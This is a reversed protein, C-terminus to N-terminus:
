MLGLVQKLCMVSSLSAFKQPYCGIIGKYLNMVEQSEGAFAAYFEVSISGPWEPKRLLFDISKRVNWKRESETMPEAFICDLEAFVPDVVTLLKPLAVGDQLTNNSVKQHDTNVEQVEGQDLNMESVENPRKVQPIEGTRSVNWFVISLLQQMIFQNGNVIMPAASVFSDNLFDKEVLKEIAKQTNEIAKKTSRASRVKVFPANALVCYLDSLFQGNRLNDEVLPKVRGDQDLSPLGLKNLLSSLVDRSLIVPRSEGRVRALPVTVKTTELASEHVDELIRWVLEPPPANACFKQLYKITERKLCKHKVLLKLASSLGLEKEECPLHLISPLLHGSQLFWSVISENLGDAIDPVSASCERLWRIIVKRQIEDVESEEKSTNSGFLNDDVTSRETCTSNDGNFKSLYLSTWM